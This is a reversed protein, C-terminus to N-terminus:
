KTRSLKNTNKKSRDNILSNVFFHYFMRLHEFRVRSLQKLVYSFNHHRIHYKLVEIIPGTNREARQKDFLSKYDTRIDQSIRKLRALIEYGRQGEAWHIIFDDDFYIPLAFASVIGSHGIDFVFVASETQEKRMLPIEVNGEKIDFIFNGLNYCCIRGDDRVEVGQLVHAHHMLILEAGAEFLRTVTDKIEPQPYDLYMLGAHISIVLFDVKSKSQHIEEILDKVQYEWYGASDFNQDINTRGCGLWGIKLDHFELVQLSRAEPINSGAGLPIVCNEKLLRITNLLGEEGHDLIHNNALHIINFGKAALCPAIEPDSAFMKNISDNILPTELNGFVIDGTGLLPLLENFILKYNKSNSYHNHIRGSFGLDGVAIIRVIRNSKNADYLQLVKINFKSGSIFDNANYIDL